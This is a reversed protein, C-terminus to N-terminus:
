TLLTMPMINITVVLAVGRNCAHWAGATRHLTADVNGALLHRCSQPWMVDAIAQVHLLVWRSGLPEYEEPALVEEPLSEVSDFYLWQFLPHFKGSVAKVVEQGVVGGFMAAMPNLEGSAGSAFKRVVAEDIEVRADAPSREKITRMLALLTDADTTSGPRPLRSHEAQM